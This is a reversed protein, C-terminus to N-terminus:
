LVTYEGQDAHNKCRMELQRTSGELVEAKQRLERSVLESTDESEMLRQEALRRLQREREFQTKLQEKDDKM